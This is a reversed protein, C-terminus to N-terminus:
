DPDRSVLPGAGSSSHENSFSETDNASFLSPAGESEDLSGSGQDVHDASAQRTRPDDAGWGARWPGWKQLPTRVAGYRLDRGDTAFCFANPVFFEPVDQQYVDIQLAGDAWTVGRRTASKAEGVVLPLGNVWLVHDFRVEVGGRRFTVETAVRYTNRTLDNFDVLQVTVHEHNTGFPMSREGLLWSRFDANAKVVGTSRASLVLGTLRYIVEDAHDADAAIDPNLRILADRVESEVLVDTEVRDLASGTVHSWALQGPSSDSLESLADTVFAQVTTREDFM